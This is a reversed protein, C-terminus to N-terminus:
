GTTHRPHYSLTTTSGAVSVVESSVVAHKDRELVLSLTFTVECEEDLSVDGSACGWFERVERHEFDTSCSSVHIDTRVKVEVHVLIDGSNLVRVQTPVVNLIEPDSEFHSYFGQHGAGLGAIAVDDPLVIADQEAAVWKRLDFGAFSGRLLEGKIREATELHPFVCAEVLQGVSTYFQFRSSASLAHVDAVLDPHLKGDLAFDQTNCTVFAVPTTSSRVLDLVSCWILYDRYGTGKSSFPKKRSLERTVVEGHGIAPVPLRGCGPARLRQALFIKYASNRRELDAQTLLRTPNEPVLRGLYKLFKTQNVLAEDLFERHKNVAEQFAIEPILIGALAHGIADWLLVSDPNRLYFDACLASTDLVVQTESSLTM